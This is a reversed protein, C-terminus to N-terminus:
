TLLVATHRHQQTADLSLSWDFLRRLQLKTAKSISISDMITMTTSTMETNM